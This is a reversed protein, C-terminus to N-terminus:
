IIFHSNVFGPSIIRSGNQPEPVTRFTTSRNPLFANPISILGLM